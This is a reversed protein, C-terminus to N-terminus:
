WSFKSIAKSAEGPLTITGTTPSTFNITVQGPSGTQNAAAYAGGLVTGGGYEAL